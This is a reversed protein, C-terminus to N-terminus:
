PLGSRVIRIVAELAGEVVREFFDFDLTEITDTTQHYHPNRLFATDTIMLAAYGADWFPSHDSLRTAQLFEGNAPVQLSEVNLDAVSKMGAVTAAILPGSVQNGIVAIWNGTDPYVGKLSKPLAQSKPAHSCYGLMELAIMGRLDIEELRCQAARYAGGLIGYEELDFVALELDFAASAPWAGPLLRAIELLGSVASANDDAGPSGPVSDLHAGVCLRPRGTCAHDRHTAELNIGSLRSGSVGTAEFSHVTVTWGCAALCQSVYERASHLAASNAPRPESAIRAVHRRLRERDVRM